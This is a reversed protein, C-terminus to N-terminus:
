IIQLLQVVDLVAALEVQSQCCDEILFAELDADM